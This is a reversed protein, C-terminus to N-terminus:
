ICRSSISQAGIASHVQDGQTLSQVWRVDGGRGGEPMGAGRDAMWGMAKCVSSWTIHCCCM